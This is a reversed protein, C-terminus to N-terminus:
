NQLLRAAQFGRAGAVLSRPTGWGPPHRLFAPQAPPLSGACAPVGLTVPVAGLNLGVFAFVTRTRFLGANPVIRGPRLLLTWSAAPSTATEKGAHDRGRPTLAVCPGVPSAAHPAPSDTGRGLEWGPESGGHPRSDDMFSLTQAQCHAKETPNWHTKLSM